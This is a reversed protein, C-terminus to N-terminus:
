KPADLYDLEVRSWGEVRNAIWYRCRSCGNPPGACDRDAVNLLIECDCYGGHLRFYALSESVDIGDM